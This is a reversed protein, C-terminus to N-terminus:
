GRTLSTFCVAATVIGTRSTASLLLMCRLAPLSLPFCLTSMGITERAFFQYSATGKLILSGLQLAPAKGIPLLVERSLPRNFLSCKLCASACASLVPYPSRNAFAFM